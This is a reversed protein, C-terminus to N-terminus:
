TGATRTRVAYDLINQFLSKYQDSMGKRVHSFTPTIANRVFCKYRSRIREMDLVGGLRLHTRGLHETILPKATHPITKTLGADLPVLLHRQCSSQTVAQNSYPGCIFPCTPTTSRRQLIPLTGNHPSSSYASM